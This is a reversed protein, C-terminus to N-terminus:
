GKAATGIAYLEPSLGVGEGGAGLIMRISYYPKEQFRLSRLLAVAERNAELVGLNIELEGAERALAQLLAAKDVAAPSVWWPGAWMVAGRRRGFIYGVIHENEIHVKALEPEKLFLRGLFFSRDADFARYDLDCARFFDKLGMARVQPCSDGAPRGRFRLSRCITRFGFSAYFSAARPVSDLSILRCGQHQLYDVARRFLQPGLDKGRFARQVILEGIFGQRGYCTAICVGGRRGEWEAILCGPAGGALFAEFEERTEILWGEAAACRAAFALDEEGM